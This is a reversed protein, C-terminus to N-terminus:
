ENKGKATHASRYDKIKQDYEEDNQCTLIIALKVIDPVDQDKLKINESISKESV